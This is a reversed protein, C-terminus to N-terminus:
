KKKWKELEKLERKKNERSFAVLTFFQVINEDWVEKWPTLTLQSYEKMM